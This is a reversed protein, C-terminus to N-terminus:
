REPLLGRPAFRLVLLLVLGLVVFTGIVLLTVAQEREQKSAESGVMSVLEARREDRWLAATVLGLLGSLCAFSWARVARTLVVPQRQADIPSPARVRTAPRPPRAGSLDGQDTGM